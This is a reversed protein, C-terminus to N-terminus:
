DPPFCVPHSDWSGVMKAFPAQFSMGRGILRMEYMTGNSRWENSCRWSYGISFPVVLTDGRQEGNAITLTNRVSDREVPQRARLIHLLYDRYPTWTASSAAPLTVRWPQPTTDRAARALYWGLEGFVATMVSRVVLTDPARTGSVVPATQASAKGAVIAALVVLVFHRSMRMM